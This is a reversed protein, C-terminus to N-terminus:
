PSFFNPFILKPIKPPHIRYKYSQLNIITNFFVFLLVTFILPTYNLKNKNCQWAENMLSIILYASYLEKFTVTEKFGPKQYSKKTVGTKDSFNKPPSQTFNLNHESNM